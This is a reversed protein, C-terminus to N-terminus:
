TETAGGRHGERQLVEKRIQSCPASYLLVDAPLSESSRRQKVERTVLALVSIIEVLIKVVLESMAPTISIETYINLRNLFHEILELLDVIADSNSIM